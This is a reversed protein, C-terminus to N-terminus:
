EVRLEEDRMENLIRMMVLTPHLEFSIRTKRDLPSEDQDTRPTISHTETEVNNPIPLSDEHDGLLSNMRIEENSYYSFADFHEDSSRLFKRKAKSSSGGDFTKTLIPKMTKTSSEM